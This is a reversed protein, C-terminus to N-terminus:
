TAVGKVRDFILANYQAGAVNPLAVVYMETTDDPAHLSFTGDPSSIISSFFAGTSRIYSRVTREVALGQEYIAGQVTFPWPVIAIEQCLYKVGSSGAETMSPPTNVSAYDGAVYYLFYDTDPVNAPIKQTVTGYYSLILNKSIDINIEVPDSWVGGSTVTVDPNGSFFLQVQNGDFDYPQGAAAAHGVFLKLIYFDTSYHPFFVRIYGAPQILKASPIIYRSTSLGGWNHETSWASDPGYVPM